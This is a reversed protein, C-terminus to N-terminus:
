VCSGSINNCCHFWSSRTLLPELDLTKTMARGCLPRLLLLVLTAIRRLTIYTPMMLIAIQNTARLLFVSFKTMAITSSVQVLILERVVKMKTHDQIEQYCALLKPLTKTILLMKMMKALMALFDNLLGFYYNMTKICSNMIKGM